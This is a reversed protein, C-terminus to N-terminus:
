DRYEHNCRRDGRIEYDEPEEARELKASECVLELLHDAVRSVPHVEREEEEYTEGDVHEEVEQACLGM